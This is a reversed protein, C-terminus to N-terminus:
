HLAWYITRPIPIRNSAETGVRRPLCASGIEATAWAIAPKDEHQASV